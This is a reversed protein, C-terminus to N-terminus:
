SALPKRKDTGNRLKTTNNLPQILQSLRIIKEKRHDRRRLQPFSQSETM